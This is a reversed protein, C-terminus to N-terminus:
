SRREFDYGKYYYDQVETDVEPRDYRIFDAVRAPGFKKIADETAKICADIEEVKKKEKIQDASDVGLVRAMYKMINEQSCRTADSIDKLRESRKKPAQPATQAKEFPSPPIQAKPPGTPKEKPEAPPNAAEKLLEQQQPSQQQAPKEKAEAPKPAEAAAPQAQKAPETRIPAEGKKSDTVSAVESTEGEIEEEERWEFNLLKKHLRAEAKTICEREGFKMKRNLQRRLDLTDGSDDLIPVGNDFIVRNNQDRSVPCGSKHRGCGRSVRDWLLSQFEIEWVLTVVDEKVVEPNDKTWAQLKAWARETNMGSDLIKTSIGGVKNAYHQLARADPEKRDPRGGGGPITYFNAESISQLELGIQEVIAPQAPKAAKEISTTKAPPLQKQQKTEAM